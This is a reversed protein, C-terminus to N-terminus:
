FNEPGYSLQNSCRVTSGFTSPELGKPRTQNFGQKQGSITSKQSSVPSKEQGSDGGQKAFQHLTRSHKPLSIASYIASSKEEAVADLPKNDTGTAKQTQSEPKKDLDPLSNIANKEQGRLVHTYRSMTLNIDSHRMLQQATKPHVGAAALMTGFSHRLSHFGVTGRDPDVEIGAKKLDSRIMRALNSTSPMKFAQAQPIKGIFITKLKDATAAKLPITTERRNKTFGGGLNVVSNNFDFDAVKLSRIELARFGTEAAFRYLIGRQYGDLGFSVPSGQVYSILLRLEDPELAARKETEAKATKLHELPNHSARGDQLMWKCFQKCAKLYYNMTSQSADGIIKDYLKGNKNKTQVTNKLKVIQQQLKSASIEPWYNFSASKFVRYVRDYQQDVYKKTNGIAFLSQRWDQIHASLPKSGEARQGDLLGWSVFKKLLVTPLTEIWRQIESDPRQGAIKTSVLAEINEGFSKSTRKETFAPIRHRRGMNDKIDIYYKRSEQRNGDVDTYRERYLRM